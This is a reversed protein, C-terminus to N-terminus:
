GALTGVKNEEIMGLSLWTKMAKNVQYAFRLDYVMSEDRNSGDDITLQGVAGTITFKPTVNFSAKGIVLDENFDERGLTGGMRYMSTPSNTADPNSNILSSWTDFGGSVLGGDRSGVYQLGLDVPGANGELRLYASPSSDAFYQGDQGGKVNGN